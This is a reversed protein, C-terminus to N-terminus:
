DVYVVDISGTSSRIYLREEGRDEPVRVSGTTSEADIKMGRLLSVYTYGTSIDISCSLADLRELRCNGTTLLVAVAGSCKLNDANISGTTNEAHVTMASLNTMRIDGTTACVSLGGSLSIDSLTINGTTVEIFATRASQNKVTVDGTTLEIKIDGTVRSYVEAKGTQGSLDLSGFSLGEECKIAGTSYDGELSLYDERPLQLEAKYGGFFFGIKEFWQREDIARVTLVGDKIEYTLRIKESERSVLKAEGEARCLTIDFMGTDLKIRDFEGSLTEEKAKLEERNLALFNFNIMAFGVGFAIVGILILVIGFIMGKKM